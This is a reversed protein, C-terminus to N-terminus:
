IFFFQDSPFQSSCSFPNSDETEVEDLNLRHHPRDSDFRCEERFRIKLGARRGTGGRGCVGM